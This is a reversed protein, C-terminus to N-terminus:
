RGCCYGPRRKAHAVAIVVIRDDNVRFVIQFPFKIVSCSQHRDDISLFRKPDDMIPAVAVDVAVLFNRAARSSREAYWEASDSLEITADPHFDVQMASLTKNLCGPAFRQGAKLKSLELTM